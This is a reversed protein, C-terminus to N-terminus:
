GWREVPGYPRLPAGKPRASNYADTDLIRQKNRQKMAESERNVRASSLLAVIAMVVCTVVIIWMAIPDLAIVTQHPSSRVSDIVELWLFVEILSM